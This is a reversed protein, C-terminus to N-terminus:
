NVGADAGQVCATFLVSISVSLLLFLATFFTKKVVGQSRKMSLRGYFAYSYSVTATTHVALPSHAYILSEANYSSLFLAYAIGKAGSQTKRRYEVCQM